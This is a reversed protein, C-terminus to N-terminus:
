DEKVNFCIQHCDLTEIDVVAISKTQSFKPVCILRTKQGSSGEHMETKFENCNGAFYIHPCEKLIFPESDIYPYCALTDPATPAIHSWMLTSRLAEIPKELMTSRLLDQINQGSTGVILADDVSCAYPNPVSRFTSNKTALPFMCTHFPQQPLMFNAPDHAGPMVDVPISQSWSAFWKDLECVADVINVCDTPRTQLSPLRPEANTRVSNGAIIVRVVQKNKENCNINGVLWHQFINLADSFNQNNIQGLGSIIVIIKSQSLKPLPKQPGSEYYLLDEVNFCGDEEINGLVACVVGTAMIRTDIKGVLKVRQLEDELILKDDPDAYYERPPQPALQNEESIERLISPKHAQHKYITGIVICTEDQEERLDCLKKVTNDAGWKEMARASLLATMEALRHAYLHSYQKQYDFPKIVFKNSLNKYNTKLRTTM